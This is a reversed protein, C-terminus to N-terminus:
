LLRPPNTLLYEAYKRTNFESPVSNCWLCRELSHPTMPFTHMCYAPHTIKGGYPEKGFELVEAKMGCWVLRGKHAHATMFTLAEAKTLCGCCVWDREGDLSEVFWLERRSDLYGVDCPRAKFVSYRFGNVTHIESM